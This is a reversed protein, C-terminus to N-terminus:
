WTATGSKTITASVTPTASLATEPSSVNIVYKDDAAQCGATSGDDICLLNGTTTWGDPTGEMAGILSAADTILTGTWSTGKVLKEAHNLSAASSAAGFVGNAAAVEAEDQIDIFKPVAVAALIGLIVIVVVLEILTFGNQNQM